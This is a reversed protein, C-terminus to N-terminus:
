IACPSGHLIYVRPVRANLCCTIEYNFRGSVAGLDEATVAENGDRGILTVRDGEGAEPIDTIDAMFQDMCIRGLIPARKGRILVYAGKGSLQRPYGDGYGASVTAMRTVRGTRFIGGYSVPVGAPVTKVYVVTSYLSLVPKLPVATKSVEESPWLGYLTIGARVMDMNAQPMGIIGASNSCHVIPIRKGTEQLIRDSFKRFIEMQRVAEGTDAADAKAFHTFMGEVEVGPTGFATKVFAMGADDPTIGIRTMGTDVAIHIKAPKGTRAAAESLQALMDRRFVAPRIEQRCLDDYCYPFVYGLILVPKKIGAQRLAEAEEFTATAFGWLYPLKEITKAIPVAGHGYGDTKIVATMKTGEKLSRHMSEMNYLVADLDIEAHIREEKGM